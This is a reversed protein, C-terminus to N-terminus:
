TKHVGEEKRSWGPYRCNLTLLIWKKSDVPKCSSLRAGNEKKWREKSCFPSTLDPSKSPQIYGKQLQDEVFAQVEERKERLLSYVKGKRPVFVEKLEIV